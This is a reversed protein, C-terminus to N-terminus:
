PLSLLMLITTLFGVTTEGGIAIDTGEQFANHRLTAKFVLSAIALTKSSVLM